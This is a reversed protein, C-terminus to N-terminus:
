LLTSTPQQNEMELKWCLQFGGEKFTQNQRNSNSKGDWGRLASVDGPPVVVVDDTYTKRVGEIDKAVLATNARLHAAKVAEIDGIIIFYKLLVSPVSSEDPGNGCHTIIM